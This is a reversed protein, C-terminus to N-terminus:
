LEVHIQILGFCVSKKMQRFIFDILDVKLRNIFRIKKENRYIYFNSFSGSLRASLTECLGIEDPQASTQIKQSPTRRLILTFPTFTISTTEFCIWYFSIVLNEVKFQCM